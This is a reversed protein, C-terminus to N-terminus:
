KPPHNKQTPRGKMFKPPADADRLNLPKPQCPFIVELVVVRAISSCRVYSCFNVGELVGWFESLPSKRTFREQDVIDQWHSAISGSCKAAWHSIGGCIACYRKSTTDCLPHRVWKAKNEHPIACTDSLYGNRPPPPGAGGCRMSELTSVSVFVPRAYRVWTAMNLCWFGMARLALPTDSLNDRLIACYPAVM